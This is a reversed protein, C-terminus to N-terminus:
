SRPRCIAPKTSRAAAQQQMEAHRQTAAKRQATTVAHSRTAPLKVRREARKKPQIQNYKPKEKRIAKAEALVADDITPYHTLAIEEVERWWLTRRRHYEFRNWWEASSGIYLLRKQSNYCRYVVNDNLIIHPEPKRGRAQRGSSEQRAVQPLTLGAKAMAIKATRVTHPSANALKAIARNTLHPQATILAIVSGRKPLRKFNM